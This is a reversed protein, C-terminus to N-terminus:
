VSILSKSKAKVDKNLDAENWGEEIKTFEQLLAASTQPASLLKDDNWINVKVKWQGDTKQWVVIGKYVNEFPGAFTKINLCESWQVYAFDVSASVEITDITALFTEWQITTDAFM